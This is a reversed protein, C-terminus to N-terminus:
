RNDKRALGLCSSRGGRRGHVAPSFGRAIPKDTSIGKVGPSVAPVAQAALVKLLTRRHM